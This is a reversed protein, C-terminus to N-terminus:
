ALKFKVGNIEAAGDKVLKGRFAIHKEMPLKLAEFAARVSKFEQKNAIVAHRASRAAAVNPDQWSASIAASRDAPAGEKKAKKAPAKSAAVIAEALATVRKEAAGRDAFRKVPKMEFREANENYFSTLEATSVDKRAEAPMALLETARALVAKAIKPM